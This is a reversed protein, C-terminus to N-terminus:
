TPQHWYKSKVVLQNTITQTFKVKYRM